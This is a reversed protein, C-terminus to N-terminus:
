CQEERKNIRALYQQATEIICTQPNFREVSRRDFFEGIVDGTSKRSVVWSGCWRELEPIPEEM